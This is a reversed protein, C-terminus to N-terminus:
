RGCKQAERRYNEPTDIEGHREKVDARLEALVAHVVQEVLANAQNIADQESAAARMGYFQDGRLGDRLSEAHYAIAEREIEVHQAEHEMTIDYECTGDSHESAIYVTVPDAIITIEVNALSFCVGDGIEAQSHRVQVKYQTSKQIETKGMLQVNGPGFKHSIQARSQDTRLEPEVFQTEVSAIMPPALIQHCTRQAEAPRGAAIVAFLAMIALLISRGHRQQM